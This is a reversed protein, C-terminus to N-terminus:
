AEQRKRRYVNQLHDDIGLRVKHSKNDSISMKFIDCPLRAIMANNDGDTILVLVVILFM